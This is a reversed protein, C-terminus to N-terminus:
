SSEKNEKLLEKLKEKEEDSLEVVVVKKRNRIFRTLIFLGMVLLIFPGIWLLLTSLNFPPRYLIFDGYRSVMFEYITEDDEGDLIMQHVKKRLDQALGANSGAINQNQCVLCRLEDIIHNYRKEHQENAFPKMEISASVASFSVFLSLIILLGKM